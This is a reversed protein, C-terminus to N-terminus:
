LNLGGSPQRLSLDEICANKRASDSEQLKDRDIKRANDRERVKVKCASM